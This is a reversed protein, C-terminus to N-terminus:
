YVFRYAAKSLIFNLNWKRVAPWDDVANEIILPEKLLLYNVYFDDLEISKVRRIEKSREITLPAEENTRNRDILEYDLDIPMRVILYDHLLTAIRALLNGLFPPSYILGYDIKNLLKLVYDTSNCTADKLLDTLQHLKILVFYLTILGFAFREKISVQSWKGKNLLEYFYDGLVDCAVLYDDLHVFRSESLKRRKNQFENRRKSDCLLTTYEHLETFLNRIQDNSSSLALDDNFFSNLKKTEILDFVDDILQEDLDDGSM